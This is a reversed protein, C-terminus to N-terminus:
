SISHRRHRRRHRPVTSASASQAGSKPSSHSSSSSASAFIHIRGLLRRSLASFFGGNGTNAGAAATATDLGPIPIEKARANLSSSDPDRQRAALGEKRLRGNEAELEQVRARLRSAELELERNAARLSSHPDAAARRPSSSATSLESALNKEPQYRRIEPGRASVAMADRMRLQECYLVQVATQVPLRENQAAHACADQSLKQCDLLRCM